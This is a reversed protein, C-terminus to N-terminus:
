VKSQQRLNVFWNKTKEVYFSPQIYKQITEMISSDNNNNSSHSDKNRLYEEHKNWAILEFVGTLIWQSAVLATVLTACPFVGIFCYIIGRYPLCRRPRNVGFKFEWFGMIFSILICYSGAYVCLSKYESSGIYEPANGFECGAIGLFFSSISSAYSMYHATIGFMSKSNPNVKLNLVSSSYYNEVNASFKDNFSHYFESSADGAIGGGGRIGGRRIGGRGGGGKAEQSNTVSNNNNNHSSHSGHSGRDEEEHDSPVCVIHIGAEDNSNDTKHKPHNINDKNVNENSDDTVLTQDTSIYTAPFFGHKGNKELTGTWWGSEDEEEVIIRDGEAFSLQTDDQGEYDHSAVVIKASM